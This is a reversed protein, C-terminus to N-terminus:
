TVCFIVKDRNYLCILSHDAPCFGTDITLIMRFMYILLRLLVCNNLHELFPTYVAVMTSHHVCGVLYLLIPENIIGLCSYMNQAINEGMM